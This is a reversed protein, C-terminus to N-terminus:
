GLMAWIRRKEERVRKEKEWNQIWHKGGGGVEVEEGM